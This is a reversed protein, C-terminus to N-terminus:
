RHLEWSYIHTITTEAGPHKEVRTRSGSLEDANPDAKGEINGSWSGPRWTGNLTRTRTPDQGNCGDDHDEKQTMVMEGTPQGNPGGGSILFSSDAELSVTVQAEGEVPALAAAALSELEDRRV